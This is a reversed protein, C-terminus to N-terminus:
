LLFSYKLYYEPTLPFSPISYWLNLWQKEKERREDTSESAELSIGPRLFLSKFFDRETFDSQVRTRAVKQKRNINETQEGKNM